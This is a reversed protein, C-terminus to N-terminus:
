LPLHHLFCDGSVSKPNEVVGWTAPHPLCATPSGAAQPEVAGGQGLSGPLCPGNGHVLIPEAWPGSAKTGPHHPSLGAWPGSFPVGLTGQPGLARHCLYYLDQISLSLSWMCGLCRGQM